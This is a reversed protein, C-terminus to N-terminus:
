RRKASKIVVTTTRRPRCGVKDDTKIAGKAVVAEDRLQQIAVLVDKQEYAVATASSSRDVRSRREDTKVVDPYNLLSIM